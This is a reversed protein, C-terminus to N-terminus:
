AMLASEKIQETGATFGNMRSENSAGRLKAVKVDDPQFQKGEAAKAAASKEGRSPADNFKETYEVGLADCLDKVTKARTIQQYV